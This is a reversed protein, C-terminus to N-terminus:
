RTRHAQSIAFAAICLVVLFMASPEPVATFPSVTASFGTTGGFGDRFIVQFTRWSNFANWIEVQGPINAPALVPPEGLFSAAAAWLDLNFNSQLPDISIGTDEAPFLGAGRLELQDIFPEFGSDVVFANDNATIQYSPCSLEVNGILLSFSHPQITTITSGGGPNPDFTFKGSVTDGQAFSLGSEFPVGAFTNDITADFAFTLPAALLWGQLSNCLIATLLAMQLQFRGSPVCETMKWRRAISQM